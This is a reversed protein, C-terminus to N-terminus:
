EYYGYYSFFFVINVKKKEPMKGAKNQVWLPLGKDKINTIESTTILFFILVNTNLCIFVCLLLLM